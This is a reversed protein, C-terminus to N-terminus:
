AAASEDFFCFTNKGAAKAAYLAQDACSLLVAPPQGIEALCAIGISLGISIETEEYRFPKTLSAILREALCAAESGDMELLAAFEDGGLRAVVDGARVLSRFRAAAERLVADGAQHGLQDNVLKFGDLDMYFITFRQNTKRIREALRALYREFFTRNPLGTLQDHSALHELRAELEKRRGIERVSTVYGDPEGTFPDHTLRIAAEMWIWSGSKHRQRLEIRANKRHGDRIERMLAGFAPKDDPHTIDIAQQGLLEEPAYGLLEQVSPSVYLRKGNLDGRVITDTSAEALLRFLSERKAADRATRALRCCQGAMEALDQLLRMKDPALIRARTDFLALRGIEASGFSIGAIFRVGPSGAVYPLSSYDASALTDGVVLVPAEWGPCGEFAAAFDWEPRNVDGALDIWHIGSGQMCISAASVDFLARATRCLADFPLETM